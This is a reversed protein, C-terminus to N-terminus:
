YYYYYHYYYLNIASYGVFLLGEDLQSSEKKKAGDPMKDNLPCARSLHLVTCSASTIAYCAHRNSSDANQGTVFRLPLFVDVLWPTGRNGEAEDVIVEYFDRAWLRITLYSYEQFNPLVRFIQPFVPGRLMEREGLSESTNRYSSLFTQRKFKLPQPNRSM